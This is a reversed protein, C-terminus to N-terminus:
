RKAQSGLKSAPASLTPWSLRYFVLLGNHDSPMEGNVPQHFAQEVRIPEINVQSGRNWGQLDQTEYWPSDTEWEIKVDCRQPHELCHSSVENIGEGFRDLFNGIREGSHRMNFDGGWIIPLDYNSTNEIFEGTAAIQLKHAFHARELPVGSSAKSNYHTTIVELQQPLGPIQIHALVIGKNALCDFGACEWQYFPNAFRHTVPFNSAILLGSSLRKGFKEGSRFSRADTFEKSARDSYKQSKDERGPGSLWNSYGGRTVVSESASIFAEQLFVIDPEIGKQRLDGLTEGIAVVADARNCSIPIREDRADTQRSRKGCALPWPLGAINLSLVSIDMSAIGTEADITVAPIRTAAGKVLTPPVGVGQRLFAFAAIALIIVLMCLLISLRRLNM